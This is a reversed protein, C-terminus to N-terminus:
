MFFQIESVHQGALVANEGHKMVYIFVVSAIPLLAVILLRGRLARSSADDITDFLFRGASSTKSVVALFAFFAWVANDALGGL